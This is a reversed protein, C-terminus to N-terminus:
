ARADFHRRNGEIVHVAREAGVGGAAMVDQDDPVDGCRPREQEGVVGVGGDIPRVYGLVVTKERGTEGTLGAGHSAEGNAHGARSPRRRHWREVIGAGGDRRRGSGTVSALAGDPQEQGYTPPWHNSSPFLRVAIM